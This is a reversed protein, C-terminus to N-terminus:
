LNKEKCIIRRISKESLYYTDALELITAGKAYKHFIEEDREKIANRTGNREGWAKEKGSKRPIYLCEGDIYEQILSIIEEPLVSEAKIYGM